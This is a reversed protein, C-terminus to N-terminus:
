RKLNIIDQLIEDGTTIMKGAAQFAKTTVIMDTFQEALDVNSMELMSQLNDGYGASNDDGLTGIGSKIVAEGSNSSGGYLNGGLSTLGEPNKFSAMAIQGLAAVRGDELIGNIVGTSDITYSKVRLEIDTGAIKVKDPIKLTKLSSDYAKLDKTGDVFNVVGETDLSQIPTGGLTADSETGVLTQPNGSVKVSQQIGADQLALGLANQIASTTVAGARTFDGNLTITKNKEDVKVSTKTGSAITGVNIKYGNLAEGEGFTFSLGFVNQAAPANYGQGGLIASSSIGAIAKASGSVTIAQTEAPNTSGNFIGSATIAANIQNELTTADVNQERFDGKLIIKSVKTKAANLQIEVPPTGDDLDAIQVEVGNFKEGKPLKLTLGAVTVSKPSTLDKGDAGVKVRITSGDAITASTIDLSKLKVEELGKNNLEANIANLLQDNTTGDKFAVTITSSGRDIKTEIANLKNDKKFEFTYGNLQSGKGNTIPQVLEFGIKIGKDNIASPAAAETGSEDSTGTLGSLQSIIGTGKVEQKIGVKKLESTIAEGLDAATVAGKELFNADVTITKAGQDVTVNTKNESIKGVQIVYDNLDEGESFTFNMGMLSVSKPSVADSGGTISDTGLGSFNLPKGSVYIEQSIGASSLSKNIASEVQAATLSNPTSFDGNVVILKETKNIDASTVTGPGVTGLVVKYGNLQAGPGFRFDLGSTNVSQPTQGTADQSSDDNTLSYGMIRYGDATLLNGQEDLVFSGDRTYMLESGATALSQSTIGHYGSTHNVALVNDGSIVPGKSVMFFGDGDIAVDLARGTPQMNGQTMVRDISSLQVGLGVQTANTGGLNQSASTATSSTQSLMDTFTVRSGKFATTGVNAINNGVVDLKTQNVKMGSIGSYMSRLM